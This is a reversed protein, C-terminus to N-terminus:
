QPLNKLMRVCMAATQILEKHVNFLKVAAIVAKRDIPQVWSLDPESIPMIGLFSNVEEESNFLKIEKM